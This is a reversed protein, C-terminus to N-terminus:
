ADGAALELDTIMKNIHNEILKAERKAAALEALIEQDTEGSVQEIAAVAQHVRDRAYVLYTHANALTQRKEKTMKLKRETPHQRKVAPHAQM